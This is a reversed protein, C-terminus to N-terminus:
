IHVDGHQEHTEIEDVDDDRVRDNKLRQVSEEVVGDGQRGDEVDEHYAVAWPGVSARELSAVGVGWVM